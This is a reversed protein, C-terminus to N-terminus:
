EKRGREPSHSFELQRYGGWAGPQTTGPLCPSMVEKNPSSPNQVRMDPHGPDVIEMEPSRSHARRGNFPAHFATTSVSPPSASSSPSPSSATTQPEDLPHKWSIQHPNSAVNVWYYRKLNKDYQAVWGSPLARGDAKPAALFNSAM